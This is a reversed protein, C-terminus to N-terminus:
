YVSICVGTPLWGKKGRPGIKGRIQGVYLHFCKLISTALALFGKQDGLLQCTFFGYKKRTIWPNSRTIWPNAVTQWPYDVPEM